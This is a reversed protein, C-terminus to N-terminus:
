AWSIRQQMAHRCRWTPWYLSRCAVLGSDGVLLCSCHATGCQLQVVCGASYWYWVSVFFFSITIMLLEIQVASAVSGDKKSNLKWIWCLWRFWKCGKGRQSRLLHIIDSIVAEWKVFQAFLWGQELVLKATCALPICYLIFFLLFLRWREGNQNFHCAIFNVAAKVVVHMLLVM